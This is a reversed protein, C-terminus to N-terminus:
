HSSAVLNVVRSTQGLGDTPRFAHSMAWVETSAASTLVDLRRQVEHEAQIASAARAAAANSQNRSKEVLYHGSLTSAVYAVAFVGGFMVAKALLVHGVNVRARKQVRTSTEVRVRGPSYSPVGTPTEVPREIEPRSKPQTTIRPQLAVPMDGSQPLTKELPRDLVISM